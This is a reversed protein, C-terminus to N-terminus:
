TLTENVGNHLRKYISERLRTIEGGGPRAMLRLARHSPNVVWRCTEALARVGNLTLSTSSRAPGTV